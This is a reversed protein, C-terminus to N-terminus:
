ALIMPNAKLFCSLYERDAHNTNHGMLRNTAIKKIRSPLQKWINRAHIQDCMRTEFDVEGIFVENRLRIEHKDTLALRTEKVIDAMDKSQESLEALQYSNIGIQEATETDFDVNVSYHQRTKYKGWWNLWDCRAVAYQLKPEDTNAELLALTLEQFLDQRDQRPVKSSFIYACRLANQNAKSLKRIGAEFQNTLDRFEDGHFEIPYAAVFMKALQRTTVALKQTKM